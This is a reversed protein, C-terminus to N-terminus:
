DVCIHCNCNALDAMMPNRGIGPYARRVDEMFRLFKATRGQINDLINKRYMWEGIYNEALDVSNCSQLTKKLERWFRECTNTHIRFPVVGAQPPPGIWTKDVCEESLRGIPIWIPDEDQPPNVFHQSHNVTLHAAFVEGLQNYAFRRKTTRSIGGFLWYQRWMNMRGINYKRKFLHTEDIEVVDEPGGIRGLEHWAVKNAVDRCYSYWAVATDTAIELESIMTSLNVGTVWLYMGMLVTHAGVERLRVRELFTNVTAERKHHPPIPCRYRWGLMRTRDSSTGMEVECVPCIKPTHRDPLVQLHQFLEIGRRNAEKEEPTDRYGFYLGFDYMSVNVRNLLRDM